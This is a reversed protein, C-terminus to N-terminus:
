FGDGFEMLGWLEDLSEVEVGGASATARDGREDSNGRDEEAAAAPPADGDQATRQSKLLQEVKAELGQM